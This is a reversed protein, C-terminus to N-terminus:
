SIAMAFPFTYHRINLWEFLVLFWRYKLSAGISPADGSARDFALWLM